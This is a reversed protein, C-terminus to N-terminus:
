LGHLPVAAFGMLLVPRRGHRQAMEGAWPSMAAVVAQPLLIAATILWGTQAVRGALGNLTLPLMAANGLHFLLLCIWFIHLRMDRLTARIRRRYRRQDHPHWTAAHDEHAGSCDEPRIAYLAAISPIVLAATLLFVSRYSLLSAGFGLLVAGAANGLSAYRANVGLREGYAQHGCISLTLAAIAPTLVCS